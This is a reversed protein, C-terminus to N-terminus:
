IKRNSMERKQVTASSIGTARQWSDDTQMLYSRLAVDAGHGIWDSECKPGYESDVETARSARLNILLKPWVEHGARKIAAKLTKTFVQGPSGVSRLHPCLFEAGDPAAEFAEELWPRFESFLPVVRIEKGEYRETKPAYIRISSRSWNVDAWRLGTIESPARVGLWRALAFILRSEITPLEDFIDSTIKPTVYFSRTGNTQKGAVVGALPNESVIKNTVAISFISRATKFRRSVTSRALPKRNGDEDKRTSGERLMWARFERADQQKVDRVASDEGFFEYLSTIAQQYTTSTSDKTDLTREYMAVLSNLTPSTDVDILGIVRLRKRVQKSTEEIFRSSEPDLPLGLKKTRWVRDIQRAVQHADSQSKGLSVRGFQYVDLYWRGNRKYPSAM